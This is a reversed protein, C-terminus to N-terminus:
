KKPIMSNNGTPTMFYCMKLFQAENLKAGKKAKTNYRKRWGTDVIVCHNGETPIIFYQSGQSIHMAMARKKLRNFHRTNWRSDINYKIPKYLWKWLNVRKRYKFNFILKFYHLIFAYSRTALVKGKQFWKLQDLSAKQKKLKDLHKLLEQKREQWKKLELYEKM